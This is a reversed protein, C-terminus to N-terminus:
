SLPHLLINDAIAGTLGAYEDSLTLLGADYLVKEPNELTGFSQLDEDPVSFRDVGEELGPIPVANLASEARAYWKRVDAENLEAVQTAVSIVRELELFLKDMNAQLLQEKIFLITDRDIHSTLERVDQMPQFVNTLPSDALEFVTNETM